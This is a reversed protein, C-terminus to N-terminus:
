NITEEVARKMNKTVIMPPLVGSSTGRMAAATSGNVGRFGM